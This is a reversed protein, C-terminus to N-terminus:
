KPPSSWAIWSVRFDDLTSATVSELSLDTRPVFITENQIAKECLRMAEFGTRGHRAEIMAGVTGDEIYRWYGPDGGVTILQCSKPLLRPKGELFRLPWNDLSVFADLNPFRAAHERILREAEAPRDHCDLWFYIKIGPHASIASRFAWLRDGDIPHDEGAHIVIISGDGNLREVVADALARGIAANDVGVFASRVDPAADQVMTVVRVGASCLQHIVPDLVTPDNVQVCVGRYGKGPLSKLLKIQETPSAVRPADILIGPLEFEHVYREAGARLAPWLPDNKGAGIFAVAFEDPRDITLDSSPRCAPGLAGLSAVLLIALGCPLARLYPRFM